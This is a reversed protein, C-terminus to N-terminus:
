RVATVDHANPCGLAHLALDGPAELTGGCSSCCAPCATRLHHPACVQCACRPAGGGGGPLLRAATASATSPTAPVIAGAARAVHVGAGGPTTVVSDLSARARPAVFKGRRGAAGGGLGGGISRRALPPPPAPPPPPPPQAAASSSGVVTVPGGTPPPPPPMEDSRRPRKFGGKSVSPLPAPRMPAGAAAASSSSSAARPIAATGSTGTAPHSSAAAVASAVMGVGGVGGPPVPPGRSPLASAAALPQRRHTTALSNSNAGAAAATQFTKPAARPAPAAPRAFSAAGGGCDGGGGGGGGRAAAVMAPDIGPLDDDPGGFLDAFAKAKAAESAGISRGSGTKFSPMSEAARAAPSPAPPPPMMQAAAAAAATAAATTSPVNDEEVVAAIADLADGKAPAAFIDGCLQQAKARAAASAVIQKGSGTSFPMNNRESSRHPRARAIRLECLGALVPPGGPLIDTNCCLCRELGGPVPCVRKAQKRATILVQGAASRSCAPARDRKSCGNCPRAVDWTQWAPGGRSRAARGDWCCLEGDCRPAWGCSVRASFVSQPVGDM